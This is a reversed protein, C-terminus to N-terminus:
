LTELALGGQFNLIQVELCKKFNCPARKGGQTEDPLRRLGAGKKPRSPTLYGEALYLDGFTSQEGFISNEYHNEQDLILSQDSVQFM